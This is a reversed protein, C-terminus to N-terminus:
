HDDEPKVGPFEKRYPANLILTAVTKLTNLFKERTVAYPSNLILRTNLLRFVARFARYIVAMVWIATKGSRSGGFFLIRKAGGKLFALTKRRMAAPKFLVTTGM